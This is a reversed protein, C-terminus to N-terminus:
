DWPITIRDTKLEIIEGEKIDNPISDTDLEFIFDKVQLLSEYKGMKILIGVIKYSYDDEIPNTGWSSFEWIGIDDNSTMVDYENLTLPKEIIDGIKYNNYDSFAVCILGSYIGMLTFDGEKIEECLWKINIVKM